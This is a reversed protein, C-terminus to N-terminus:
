MGASLAGDPAPGLVAAHSAQSPEDDDARPHNNPTYDVIHNKLHSELADRDM